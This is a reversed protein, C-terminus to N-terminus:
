QTNPANKEAIGQHYELFTYERFKKTSYNDNNLSIIVFLLIFVITWIYIAYFMGERSYM